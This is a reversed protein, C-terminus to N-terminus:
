ASVNILQGLVQGSLNVRTSSSSAQAGSVSMDDRDRDNDPGSSRMEAAEPMRSPTTQTAWALSAGSISSADM